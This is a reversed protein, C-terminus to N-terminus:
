TKECLIFEFYPPEFTVTIGTTSSASTTAPVNITHMHTSSAVTTGAGAQVVVTSSPAGSSFAAPDVVHTHGPDTVTASSSGGTTGATSAIKIYRGTLGTTVKTFGSPCTSGSRMLIIASAPMLQGTQVDTIKEALFQLNRLLAWSDWPNGEKQLDPYPFPLEIAM